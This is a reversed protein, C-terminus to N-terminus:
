WTKLTFRYTLACRFRVTKSFRVISFKDYCLDDLLRVSQLVELGSDLTLELFDSLVSIKELLEHSARVIGLQAHDSTNKLNTIQNIRLEVSFIRVKVCVYPFAAINQPCKLFHCEYLINLWLRSYCDSASSPNVRHYTSGLKFHVPNDIWWLFM